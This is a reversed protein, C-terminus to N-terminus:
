KKKKARPKKPGPKPAPASSGSWLYGCKPCEHQVAIDEGFAQFGNAPPAPLSTFQVLQVDGFGLMAIPYGQMQLDAITGRVLEKDWGAMLAVSNDQIRMALKDAASLGTRVLVPFFRLGAELAALRRGHGKLIVGNEDVVIDQDPGYKKILQALLTIEAPPHTRPNNPYPFIKEIPWLNASKRRYVAPWLSVDIEGWVRSAARAADSRRHSM